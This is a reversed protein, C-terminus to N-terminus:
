VAVDVVEIRFEFLPSKVMKQLHERAEDETVFFGNAGGSTDMGKAIDPRGYLYYRIVYRIISNGM